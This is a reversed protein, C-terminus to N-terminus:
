ATERGSHIPHKLEPTVPDVHKAPEVATSKGQLALQNELQVVRSQLSNLANQVEPQGTDRKTQSFGWGRDPGEIIADQWGTIGLAHLYEQGKLLGRYLEDPTAAHAPAFPGFFGSIM